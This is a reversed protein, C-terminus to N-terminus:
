HYGGLVSPVTADDDGSRQEGSHRHLHRTVPLSNPPSASIGVSILTRVRVQLLDKCESSEILCGYIHGCYYIMRTMM